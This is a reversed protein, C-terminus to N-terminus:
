LRAFASFATRWMTQQRVRGFTERGLQCTSTLYVNRGFPAGESWCRKQRSGAQGRRHERFSKFPLFAGALMAAALPGSFWLLGAAGSKAVARKRSTVNHM